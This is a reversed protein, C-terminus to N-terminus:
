NYADLFLIKKHCEDIEGKSKDLSSQLKSTHEDILTSNTEMHTFKKDLNKETSARSPTSRLETLSIKSQLSKVTNNVEEMKTDLSCLRALILGLKEAFDEILKSAAM